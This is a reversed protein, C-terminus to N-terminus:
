RRETYFTWTRADGVLYTLAESWDIREFVVGWRGGARAPEEVGVVRFARELERPDGGEYATEFAIDDLEPEGDGHWRLRCRTETGVPRCHGVRRRRSAAVDM